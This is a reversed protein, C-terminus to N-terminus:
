TMRARGPAISLILIFLITLGITILARSSSSGDGGMSVANTMWGWFECFLYAMLSM